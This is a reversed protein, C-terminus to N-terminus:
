ESCKEPFFKGNIAAVVVEDDCSLIIYPFLIGTGERHSIFQLLQLLSCCLGSVSFTRQVFFKKGVACFSHQIKADGFGFVVISFSALVRGDEVKCQGLASEVFTWSRYLESVVEIYSRSLM